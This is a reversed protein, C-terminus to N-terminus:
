LSKQNAFHKQINGRIQMLRDAQMQSDENFHTTGHDVLNRAMRLLEHLVSSNRECLAKLGDPDSDGKRRHHIRLAAVAATASSDLQTVLDEFEKRLKPDMTQYAKIASEHGDLKSNNFYDEYSTAKWAMLDDMAEPMSPLVDILMVVENFINLYDNALGSTASTIAVSPSAPASFAQM